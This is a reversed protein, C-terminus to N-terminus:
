GLKKAKELAEIGPLTGHALYDLMAGGATSLFEFRDNLGLKQIAAITDGGGVASAGAAAAIIRALEETTYVFGKEFNGLPGNWLVTRAKEIIPTLMTVTAPGADYITDNELVASPEKVVRGHAGEVTVDIPLLVKSNKLLDGLGPANSFLSKGVSWGKAMFFDHALAGGIFVKDYKALLARVLPEKTVFKAGGVLALSPSKPNLAEALGDLEHMFQVGAYSPLFRPVGVISAHARHAAAFDDNVYVDGLAALTRAFHEDNGEEGANRRLNELMLVDGDKLARVAARAKEGAVDDVYSLAIKKRLADYVPYLSAGVGGGIHSLLVVRAGRASLLAVTKLAADLRFANTVIGNQVPVNLSARVLVTVGRLKDAVAVVSAVSM